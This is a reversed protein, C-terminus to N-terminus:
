GGVGERAKLLQKNHSKRGTASVLEGTDRHPGGPPEGQGGLVFMRLSGKLILFRPSPFHSFLTIM